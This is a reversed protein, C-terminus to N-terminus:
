LLFTAMGILVLAVFVTTGIALRVFGKYTKERAPYDMSEKGTSYDIAMTTEQFRLSHLHGPGDPIVPGDPTVPTLLPLAEQENDNQRWDIASRGDLAIADASSCAQRCAPMIVCLQRCRAPLM